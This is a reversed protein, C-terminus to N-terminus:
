TAVGNQVEINSRKQLTSQQTSQKKVSEVPQRRSMLLCGCGCGKLYRRKRGCVLVFFSFCISFISSLIPTCGGDRPLEVNYRAAVMVRCNWM